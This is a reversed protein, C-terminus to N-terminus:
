SAYISEVEPRGPILNIEKAHVSGLKAANINAIPDHEHLENRVMGEIHTPRRNEKALFTLSYMQPQFVTRKCNQHGQHVNNSGSPNPLVPSPIGVTESFEAQEKVFSFKENPDYVAATM